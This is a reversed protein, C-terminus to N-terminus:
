DLLLNKLDARWTNFEELITKVRFQTIESIIDVVEKFMIDGYSQILDGVLKGKRHQTVVSFWYEQGFEDIVFEAFQDIFRPENHQPSIQIAQIM